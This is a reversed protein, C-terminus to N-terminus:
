YKQCLFKVGSKKVLYVIWILDLLVYILAHTYTSLYTATYMSYRTKTNSGSHYRYVYTHTGCLMMVLFAIFCKELHMIELFPKQECRIRYIYLVCTTGRWVYCEYKQRVLFKRKTSHRLVCFICAVLYIYLHCIRFIYSWIFCRFFHCLFFFLLVFYIAFCHFM